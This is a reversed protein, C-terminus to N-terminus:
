AELSTPDGKYLVHAGVWWNQGSQNLGCCAEDPINRSARILGVVEEEKNGCEM